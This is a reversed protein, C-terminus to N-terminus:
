MPSPPEGNRRWRWDLVRNYVWATLGGIAAGTLFGYFFGLLSGTWTVTYGPFYFRLLGLHPGVVEGGLLTLWATAFSLGTGAILGFVIALIRARLRAVAIRVRHRDTATASRGTV